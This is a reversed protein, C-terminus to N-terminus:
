ALLFSTAIIEVDFGFHMLFFYMQNDMKFKSFIILNEQKPMLVADDSHCTMM